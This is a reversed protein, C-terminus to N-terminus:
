EVSAQEVWGIVGSAAHKVQWWWQTGDSVSQSSSVTFVAPPAATVLIETYSAPAARLWIFPIQSKMRLVTGVPWSDRGGPEPSPTVRVDIPGTRDLFALEVWGRVVTMSLNVFGWWQVGDWFLAGQNPDSSAIVVSPPYITTIVQAYSSPTTRLWVFPVSSRIVFDGTWNSYIATPTPAPTSATAITGVSASWFIFLLLGATGIRIFSKQLLMSEGRTANRMM